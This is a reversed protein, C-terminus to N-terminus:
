VYQCVRERCSARGIQESTMGALPPAGSAGANPVAQATGHSPLPGLAFATGIEPPVSTSLDCNRIGMRGDHDAAPVTPGDIVRLVVFSFFPVGAADFRM